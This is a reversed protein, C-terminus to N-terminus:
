DAHPWRIQALVTRKLIRWIADFHDLAPIPAGRVVCRSTIDNSTIAIERFGAGDFSCLYESELETFGSLLPAFQALLLNFTVNTSDREGRAPSWHADVTASDQSADLSWFLQHQDVHGSFIATVNM